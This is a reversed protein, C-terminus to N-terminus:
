KWYRVMPRIRWIEGNHSHAEAKIVRCHGRKVMRSGDRVFGMAILALTSYPKRLQAYM